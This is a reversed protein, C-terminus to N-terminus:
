SEDRWLELYQDGGVPTREVRFARPLGSADTCQIRRLWHGPRPIEPNLRSESTALIRGRAELTQWAESYALGVVEEPRRGLLAYCVVTNAALITGGADLLLAGDPLSDVILRLTDRSRQLQATRKDVLQELEQAHQRLGGIVEASGCAAAIVHTFVSLLSWVDASFTIEQGARALVLAGLARGAHVLPLAVCGGDVIIQRQEHARRAAAAAAAVLAQTEPVRLAEPLTPLTDGGIFLLGYDVEFVAVGRDQITAALDAASREASLYQSMAFLALAQDRRRRESHYHQAAGLAVGMQAAVGELLLLDHADFANPQARNVTLAGLTARAQRIPLVIVSGSQHQESFQLWRRDRTVDPLAVSSGHRIVWGALGRDVLARAQEPDLPQTVGAHAALALEVGGGVGVLLASASDHPFHAGLVKLAQAVITPTDLTERFEIALQTLLSTRRLQDDLTLAQPAHRTTDPM